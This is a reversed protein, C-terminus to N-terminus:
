KGEVNIDFPRVPSQHEHVIGIAHCFEHVVEWEPAAYALYMTCQQSDVQITNYMGLTSRSLEVCGFVGFEIRIM